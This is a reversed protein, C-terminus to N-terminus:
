TLKCNQMPWMWLWGPPCTVEPSVYIATQVVGSKYLSTPKLRLKRMWLICLYLVWFTSVPPDCTQSCDASYLSLRDWFYYLMLPNAILCFLYSNCLAIGLLCFAHFCKTNYSLGLPCLEVNLVAFAPLLCLQNWSCFFLCFWVSTGALTEVQVVWFFWTRPTPSSFRDAM